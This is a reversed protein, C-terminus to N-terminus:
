PSVSAVSSREILTCTFEVHDDVQEEHNIMRVLLEGARRGKEEAPQHVTTLPPELLQAEFIDDFGVISLDEPVRLGACRIEEYLGIAMIDSMSVIGTVDTHEALLHRAAKRGGDM